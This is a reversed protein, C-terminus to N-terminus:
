FLGKWNPVTGLRYQPPSFSSPELYQSVAEKGHHSCLALYGKGRERPLSMLGEAAAAKQLNFAQIQPAIAAIKGEPIISSDLKTVEM